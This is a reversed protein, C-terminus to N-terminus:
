FVGYLGVRLRRVFINYGLLLLGNSATQLIPLCTSFMMYYLQNILCRFSTGRVSLRMWNFIKIATRTYVPVGLRFHHVRRGRSTPHKQKWREILLLISIFNSRSFANFVSPQDNPKIATKEATSDRNPTCSSVTSVIAPLM